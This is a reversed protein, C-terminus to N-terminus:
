PFQTGGLFSRAAAFGSAVAGDITSTSLYDGCFYLPRNPDDQNRKFEAAKRYRGVRHVPIAELRRHIHFTQAETPLPSYVRRALELGHHNLQEDSWDMVRRSEPDSLYVSILEDSATTPRSDKSRHFSLAALPHRGEGCPFIANVRPDESLRPIRYCIHVNAAYTQTSLFDRMEDSIFTSEIDATLRNAM